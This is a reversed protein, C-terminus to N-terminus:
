VHLRPHRLILHRKAGRWYGKHPWFLAGWRSIYMCVCWCITVIHIYTYIYIILGKLIYGLRKSKPHRKATALSRQCPMSHHCTSGAHNVIHKKAPCNEIAFVLAHFNWIFCHSGFRRSTDGLGTGIEARTVLEIACLWSTWCPCAPNPMGCFASDPPVAPVKNSKYVITM